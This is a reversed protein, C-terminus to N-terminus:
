AASPLLRAACREIPFRFTGPFNIYSHGVPGIGRLANISYRAVRQSERDVARQLRQTNWAMIYNTVLTLAGSIAIREESRRQIPKM